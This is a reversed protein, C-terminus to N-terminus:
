EKNRFFILTIPCFIFWCLICLTLWFWASFISRASDHKNELDMLLRFGWWEKYKM